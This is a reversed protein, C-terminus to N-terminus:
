NSLRRWAAVNRQHQLFTAAFRHGGNGDAVFYLLNNKPPNLVSQLSAVGPNCIPTPPLGKRRYTNYPTDMELESRLLRRGLPAQGFTLGYIVTPDAQLMMDKRLRNLFVAAILPREQELATEKEVISALIVAEEPTQLPLDATRESWLSALTESAERMIRKLLARRHTGREFFYTEPLLSGEAPIVEIEGVLYPTKRLLRVAEWSTVGEPFTVRHQISRGLYLIEAVEAMSAKAPIQFEGAQLRHQIGRVLIGARFLEPTGIIGSQHLKRTITEVSSGSPIIVTGGSYSGPAFFARTGMQWAIVGASVLLSLVVALFVAHRARTSGKAVPYGDIRIPNSTNSPM